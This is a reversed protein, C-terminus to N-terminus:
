IGRNNCQKWARRKVYMHFPPVGQYIYMNRQKSNYSVNQTYTFLCGAEIGVVTCEVLDISSLLGWIKDGLVGPLGGTKDGLVGPLGGSKDGQVETLAISDSSMDTADEADEIIRLNLIGSAQRGDM